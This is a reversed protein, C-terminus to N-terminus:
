DSYFTQFCKMLLKIELNKQDSFDIELSQVCSTCIWSIHRLKSMKKFILFSKLDMEKEERTCGTRRWSQETCAPWAPLQHTNINEGFGSQCCAMERGDSDPWLCVLLCHVPPPFNQKLPRKNLQQVFMKRVHVNLSPFSCCCTKM